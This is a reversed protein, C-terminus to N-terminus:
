EANQYRCCGERACLLLLLKRRGACGQFDGSLNHVDVGDHPLLVAPQNGVEVFIVELQFFVLLRLDDAIKRTFGIRRQGHADQHIGTGALAAHQFHLLRSASANRRSTM